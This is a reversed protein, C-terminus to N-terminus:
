SAVLCAYHSGADDIIMVCPVNNCCNSTTTSYSVCTGAYPVCMAGDGDTGGDTGSETGSDTTSADSGGHRHGLLGRSFHAVPASYHDASVTTTPLEEYGPAGALTWLVTPTDSGPVTSALEVTVPQAFTLGEPGFQFIPSVADYGDPPAESVTTISIVTDSSVAGAPVILRVGTTEVVGGSPGVNSSTSPGPGSSGSSSSTSPTNEDNSTCAVFGAVLTLLLPVVVAVRRRHIGMSKAYRGGDKRGLSVASVTRM